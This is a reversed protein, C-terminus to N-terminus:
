IPLEALRSDYLTQSTQAFTPGSGDPNQDFVLYVCGFQSDQWRRRNGYTKSLGSNVSVSDLTSIQGSGFCFGGCKRAATQLETTPVSRV